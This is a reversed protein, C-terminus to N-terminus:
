TEMGLAETELFKSSGWPSDFVPVMGKHPLKGTCSKPSFCEGPPAGLQVWISDKLREFCQNRPDSNRLRKWHLHLWGGVRM